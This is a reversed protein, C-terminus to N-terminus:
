LSVLLAVVVKYVEGMQFHLFIRDPITEAQPSNRGLAIIESHPDDEWELLQYRSTYLFCVMENVVTKVDSLCFFRFM